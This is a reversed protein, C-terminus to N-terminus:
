GRDDTQLAFSAPLIIVVRIMKKKTFDRSVPRVGPAWIVMDGHCLVPLTVRTERPIKRDIFIKKLKRTHPAFPPAVRDGPKQPRIIFPYGYTKKDIHLEIGQVNDEPEFHFIAGAWPIEHRGPGTVHVAHKQGSPTRQKRNKREIILRDYGVSVRIGGPIDLSKSGSKKGCLEIMSDLHVQSIRPPKEFRELASSLIRSKISDDIRNFKVLDVAIRNEGAELVSLKSAKEACSALFENEMRMNEALRTLAPVLSKNFEKEILPILVHRIRNRDYATDMNTEDTTFPINERVIFAEIESRTVSLMPRIVMGERIPLIGRLGRSGAGSIVRMLVTEAQDSATHATAIRVYGNDAAIKELADYRLIRATEEIGKNRKKSETRVSVKAFHFPIGLEQCQSEVFKLDRPSTQRLGHDIHAVGLRFGIAKELRRLCHLMAMSDAGGSVAALVRSDKPIMSFKLIQKKVRVIINM